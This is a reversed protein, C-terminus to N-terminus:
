VMTWFATEPVVTCSLLEPAMRMLLVPLGPCPPMSTPAPVVASLRPNTEPWALRASVSAPPTMGAPVTTWFEAPVHTRTVVWSRVTLGFAGPGM